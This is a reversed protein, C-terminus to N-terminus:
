PLPYPTGWRGASEGELSRISEGSSLCSTRRRPSHGVSRCTSCTQRDPRDEACARGGYLRERYEVLPPPDGPTSVLKAAGWAYQGGHCHLAVVAPLRGGRGSPVLVRAPIDYAPSARIRVTEIRFGDREESGILEGSVPSPTPDFGLHRHFAPRAAAKWEDLSTWRDELFSFAPAQERAAWAITDWLNGLDSEGDGMLRASDAPAVSAPNTAASAPLLADWPLALAGLAGIAQRRTMRSPADPDFDMMLSNQAREATM